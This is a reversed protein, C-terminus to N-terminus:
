EGKKEEYKLLADYVVQPYHSKVCRPIYWEKVLKTNGKIKLIKGVHTYRFLRPPCHTVIDCNTRVVTFNEWREKLSKKVHWAGYIRPAEFGYGLIGGNRLNPRWFWCCEHCFAALAGGHSYGIVYIKNYPLQVTMITSNAILQKVLQGGITYINIVEGKELNNLHITSGDVIVRLNNDDAKHAIDSTGEELTVVFTVDHLLRM